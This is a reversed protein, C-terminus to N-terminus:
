PQLPKARPHVVDGRGTRGQKETLALDERIDDAPIGSDKEARYDEPPNEVVKVGAPATQRQNCWASPPQRNFPYGARLGQRIRLKQYNAERAELLKARLATDSVM